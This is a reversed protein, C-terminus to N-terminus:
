ERFDESASNRDSALVLGYIRRAGAEKLVEACARFTAGTTMIDDTLLIDKGRIEASEAPAFAGKLNERREKPSLGYQAETQRIRCLMRGMPIGQEELWPRFIMEAQNFGRQKEKRSHLPVPVALLSSPLVKGLEGCAQLFTRIYPLTGKRGRYKLGRILDRLAGRYRGMAWAADMIGALGASLPLRQVCVTERLCAPCWAGREKAYANCKPCRPPYLFDM